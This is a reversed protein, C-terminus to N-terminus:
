HENEEGNELEIMKEHETWLQEEEMHKYDEMEVEYRGQDSMNNMGRVRLGAHFSM